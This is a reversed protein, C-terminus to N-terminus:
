RAGCTCHLRPSLWLAGIEGPADGPVQRASCHPNICAYVPPLGRLFLHARVPLLPRDDVLRAAAALTLLASTAVGRENEKLTPFLHHAIKQFAQAHGATIKWLDRFAHLQPLQQGLYHPLDHDDSPSPWGLAESLAALANWGGEPSVARNNFASLDFAALVAAEQEVNGPTTSPPSPADLRQGSIVAFNPSRQGRKGALTSAFEQISHQGDDGMDLSASTLIFRVRDRSVGLRAQLRRLLLAIEAGTVGSYLHAEDLVILLTNAANQKLWQATQQFLTREIPRILMYELMSYNTILIDPCWNQMQHRTYLESDNEGPIAQGALVAEYLRAIDLAPWRGRKKLEHMQEPQEQELKLYYDLLPLLHQRNKDGRMMGPYPTRSTYMGFRVPRKAGYRQKFWAALDPNGFLSRLRTLQDNVLANMPYLILARMGPMQFTYPRSRAEEFARVLIPLLFTETKGSGTGTVVILDDDRGLFAELAEAQHKYLRSPIVPQEWSALDELAATIPSPLALSSYLPGSAYGPTSEIFPEQSIVKTTELLAHREAVVSAHRIPYQAEIYRELQVHLERALGPVDLAHAAEKSDFKGQGNDM